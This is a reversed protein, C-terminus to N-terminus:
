VGYFIKYKKYESPSFMEEIDIEAGHAKLFSIAKSQWGFGSPHHNIGIYNFIGSFENSCSDLPNNRIENSTFDQKSYDLIDIKEPKKSYIWLKFSHTGEILICNNVQLYIISIQSGVVKAYSINDKNIKKVFRVAQSSLFLRSHKVLGQKVLGELFKKRAPFMRRLDFNSSALSYDELAQLFLTLDEKSLWGYMKSIQANAMYAWWKQYKPSAKPVRPDGAITLIVDQWCDSVDEEPSRDILISLIRHGILLNDDFPAEYVERKKVEALVSHNAGVPIRSLTEIYYLMRCINQFRGSEYGQLGPKNFIEDLTESKSLSNILRAPGDNRFIVESYEHLNKIEISCNHKTARNEVREALFKGFIKLVDPSCLKDFHEFWLRVLSLLTLNTLRGLPKELTTLLRESIPVNKRFTDSTLFLHTVARVHIPKIIERIVDEINKWTSLFQFNKVAQQFVDSTKGAKQFIDSLRKTCEDFERFHRETWEIYKTSLCNSRIKTFPM